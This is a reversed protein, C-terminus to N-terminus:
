YDSAEKLAEEYGKRAAKFYSGAKLAKRKKKKKKKKEIEDESYQSFYKSIADRLNM